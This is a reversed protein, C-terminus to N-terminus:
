QAAGELRADFSTTYGSSDLTHTTATVLYRGSLRAGLEALEIYKGARLDPLGITKGKVTVMLKQQNRMVGLAKQEAEKKSFVPEDTITESSAPTQAIIRQMEKPLGLRKDDYKIEVTFPKKARRDWGHVIVSHVQLNTSVTPTIEILSQGWTLRYSVSSEADIARRRTSDGIKDRIDPPLDQPFHDVPGFYLHKVAPGTEPKVDFTIITYGHERARRFLFDIDYQNQQALYVLKEEASAYDNRVHIRYPFKGQSGRPNIALDKAVESDTKNEWTWTYQKDRLQYLTNVGSVSLTPGGSSPFRPQMNTIVGVMFLSLDSGYGLEVAVEKTSPEFLTLEARDAGQLQQQTESGIYRHRRTDPDWNNVTFEFHDLANKEDNVSDTYTVSRIGEIEIDGVTIRARPVYFGNVRDLASTDRVPTFTLPPASM